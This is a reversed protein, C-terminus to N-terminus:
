EWGNMMRITWIQGTHYGAHQALRILGEHGDVDDGIPSKMRFALQEATPNEYLPRIQSKSYDLLSQVGELSLEEDSFPCDGDRLFGDMIARDLKADLETADPDQGTMRAAWYHEAGAIHAVIQGISHGGPYSAQRIQDDSLDEISKQLRVRTFAWVQGLETM